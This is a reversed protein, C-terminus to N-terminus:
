NGNLYEQCVYELADARRTPPDDGESMIKALARDVIRKQSATLVFTVPIGFEKGQLGNGPVEGILDAFASHSLLKSQAAMEIRKSPPVELLLECHGIPLTQLTSVPVTESLQEIIRMKKYLSARSEGMRAEMWDNFHDYGLPRYWEHKRFNLVMISVEVWRTEISRFAKQIAEDAQLAHAKDLPVIDNQTM